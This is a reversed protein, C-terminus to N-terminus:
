SNSFEIPKKIKHFLTILFLATFLFAIYLNLDM